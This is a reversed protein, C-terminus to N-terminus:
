NVQSNRLAPLSFLMAGTFAIAPPEAKRDRFWTTVAITLATSSLIWMIGTILLSFFRINFTRTFTFRVIVNSTSEPLPEIAIRWGDLSGRFNYDVTLSKNTDKEKCNFAVVAIYTDFPYYSSTANLLYSEFNIQQDNDGLTYPIWASSSVKVSYDTVNGNAPISSRLFFKVSGTNLNFSSIGQILVVGPFKEPYQTKNDAQITNGQQPKSATIGNIVSVAPITISLVLILAAVIMRRVSMMAM